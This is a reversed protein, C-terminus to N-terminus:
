ERQSKPSTLVCRHLSIADSTLRCRPESHGAAAPHPTKLQGQLVHSHQGELDGSEADLWASAYQELSEGETRPLRSRVAALARLRVTNRPSRTSFTTWRLVSARTM